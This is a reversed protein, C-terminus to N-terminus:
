SVCRGMLANQTIHQRAAPDARGGLVRRDLGACSPQRVHRRLLRHGHLSVGTRGHACRFVMAIQVHCFDALWFQSSCILRSPALGHSTSTMSNDVGVGM